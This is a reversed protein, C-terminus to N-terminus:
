TTSSTTSPGVVRRVMCKSFRDSLLTALSRCCAQVQSPQPQACRSPDGVDGTYCIAAEVVGGAEGAADIGPLASCRSLAPHQAFPPLPHPQRSLLDHVFMPCCSAALHHSPHTCVSCLITYACAYIHLITYLYPQALYISQM